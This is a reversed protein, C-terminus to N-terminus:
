TGASHLSINERTYNINELVLMHVILYRVVVNRKKIFLLINAVSVVM